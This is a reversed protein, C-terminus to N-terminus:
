NQAAGNELKDLEEFAKAANFEIRQRIEKSLSNMESLGRKFSAANMVALSYLTKESADFYHDVIEVGSVDMSTFARTTSSITQENDGGGDANGSISAGYSKVLSTIKTKFVRALEARAATDAAIRRLSASPINSAAGVAYFAAGRDGSYFASGKDIWGPRNETPAAFQNSGTCGFTFSCILLVALQSVPKTNYM